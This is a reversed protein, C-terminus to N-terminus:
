KIFVNTSDPKPSFKKFYFNTKYGKSNEYFLTTDNIITYTYNDLIYQRVFDSGNEKWSQVHITNNELQFVGWFVKEKRINDIGAPFQNINEINWSDSFSLNVGNKYFFSYTCYNTIQKDGSIYCGDLRFEKATYPTRIMTLEEDPLTRVCSYLVITFLILIFKVKM